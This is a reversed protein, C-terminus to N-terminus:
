SAITTMRIVRLDCAESGPKVHLTTDASPLAGTPIPGPICREASLGWCRLERLRHPSCRLVRPLSTRTDPAGRRHMTRDSISQIIEDLASSTTCMVSM